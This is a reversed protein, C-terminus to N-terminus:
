ISLILATPLFFFLILDLLMDTFSKKFCSPLTTPLRLHLLLGLAEPHLYVHQLYLQVVIQLQSGIIKKSTIFM